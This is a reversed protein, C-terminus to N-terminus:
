QYSEGVAFVEIETRGVFKESKKKGGQSAVVPRAFEQM